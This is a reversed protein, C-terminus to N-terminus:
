SSEAWTCTETEHFHPKTCSQFLYHSKKKHRAKIQCLLSSRDIVFCISGAHHWMNTLHIKVNLFMTVTAKHLEVGQQNRKSHSDFSWSDHRALRKNGEVPKSPLFIATSKISSLWLHNIRETKKNFDKWPSRQFNCPFRTWQSKSATFRLVAFQSVAPIYTMLLMCRQISIASLRSGYCFISVYWWLAFIGGCHEQKSSSENRYECCHWYRKFWTLATRDHLNHYLVPVYFRTSITTIPQWQNGTVGLTGTQLRRSDWQDLDTFWDRYWPGKCINWEQFIGSTKQRITNILMNSM